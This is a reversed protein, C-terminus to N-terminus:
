ICIFLFGVLMVGWGLNWRLFEKVDDVDEAKGGVFGGDELGKDLPVEDHVKVELGKGDTTKKEDGPPLITM